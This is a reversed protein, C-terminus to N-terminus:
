SAVQKKDNQSPDDDGKKQDRDNAIAMLHRPIPPKQVGNYNAETQQESAVEKFLGERENKIVDSSDFEKLVIGKKKAEKAYDPKGLLAVVTCYWPNERDIFDSAMYCNSDCTEIKEQLSNIQEQTKKIDPELLSNINNAQMENLTKTLASIEVELKAKKTKEEDLTRNMVSLFHHTERLNYILEELQYSSVIKARVNMNNMNMQTLRRFRDRDSERIQPEQM